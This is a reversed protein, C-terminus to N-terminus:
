DHKKRWAYVARETCGVEAAIAGATAHPMRQVAEAIRTSADSNEAPQMGYLKAGRDGKSTHLKGDNCLKELRGKLRNAALKIGAAEIRAAIVERTEHDGRLLELLKDDSIDDSKNSPSKGALRTPDAEDDIEWLDSEPDRYIVTSEPQAFSRTVADVVVRGEIEHPRLFLHTDAARSIAGAGSGGDTTSKEAQNGKSSHHVVILAAGTRRTIQDLLNYICTVAANDNESAGVPWFRYLADLIIIGANCHKAANIIGEAVTGLGQDDDGQRGLANEEGRRPCVTLGVDAARMAIAVSRIRAALTEHHLEGDILLVNTKSCDRGLWQLGNSAALALSLVLWSKGTKPAAIVNCTEGKRLLGDIIAPRYDPFQERLEAATTAGFPLKPPDGREAIAELTTTMQEGEKRTGTSPTCAKANHLLGMAGAGM